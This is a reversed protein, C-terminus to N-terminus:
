GDTNRKNTPSFAVKEDHVKQAHRGAIRTYRTVTDKNVGTLRSTSRTGCGEQIHELVSVVKEDPLRSEELVTGKRESFRKKCTSCHLMRIRKGKGSYGRHSLNGKNRIGYDPCEKNQCCFDELNRKM